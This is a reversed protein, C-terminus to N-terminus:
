VLAMIGSLESLLTTTEAKTRAKTQIEDRKRKPAEASTRGRAKQGINMLTGRRSEVEYCLRGEYAWEGWALAGATDRLGGRPSILVM